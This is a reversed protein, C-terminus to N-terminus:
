RYDVTVAGDDTRAIIQHDAGSSETVGIDISGNDGSVAVDYATNDAPVMVVIAGDDTRVDVLEPQSDFSLEIAGDDTRATVGAAELADGDIAGDDTRVDISGELSDLMVRGDDTVVVVSTLPPITIDFGVTCNRGSDDKCVGEIMLTDGNPNISYSADGEDSERLTTIIEISGLGGASITVKGDSTSLDLLTIDDASVTDREIRQTSSEDIDINLSCGAFALAGIALAPLLTTFNM